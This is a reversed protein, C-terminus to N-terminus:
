LFGPDRGLELGPFVDRELTRRGLGYGAALAWAPYLRIDQTPMLDRGAYLAGERLGPWDGYLRGGRLAGGALLTVSATGHDTGRSGNEAVTRGFETLTVVLTRKWLKRGLANKLVGVSETLQKLKRPLLGAQNAHTDWGGISLVAIRAEDQLMKAALQASTEVTVRSSALSARVEDGTVDALRAAALARSFLADEAYLQSLLSDREGRALDSSPSWFLAEEAGRLILMEGRGVAVAYGKPRGSPLAALARNMWGDDRLEASATGKELIDQGEFHSRQDRYPTSVAPAFALEGDRWLRYLPKMAPHLAFGPALELPKKGADASLSPRVARWAKDEYPRLMDLGDLGGRLIIVVLRTEGPAAAWALSPATLATTLLLGHSAALFSRRDIRLAGSM